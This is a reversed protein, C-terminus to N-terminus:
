SSSASLCVPSSTHPSVLRKKISFNPPSGFPSQSTAHIKVSITNVCGGVWVGVCVGFWVYVSWMKQTYFM